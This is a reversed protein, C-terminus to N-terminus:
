LDGGGFRTRVEDRRAMALGHARRMSRALTERTATSAILQSEVYVNNADDVGFAGFREAETWRFLQRLLEESMPVDGALYVRNAIVGDSDWPALTSTVTTGDLEFVFGIAHIRERVPGFEAELMPRLQEYAARQGDSEFPLVPM